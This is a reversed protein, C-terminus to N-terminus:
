LRALPLRLVLHFSNKGHLDVDCGPVEAARFEEGPGVPQMQACLFGLTHVPQFEAQRLLPVPTDDGEVDPVRVARQGLRQRQVFCATDAHAPAKGAPAAALPHQGSGVAIAVGGVGPGALVVDVADEGGLARAFLQGGRDVLLEDGPHHGAGVGGCLGGFAGGGALRVGLLAGALGSRRGLLGGGAGGQSGAIGLLGFGSGVTGGGIGRGIASHQADVAFATGDPQVCQVDPCQGARDRRFGALQHPHHLDIGGGACQGGVGDAGVAEAPQAAFFFSKQELQQIRGAVGVAAGSIVEFGKFFQPVGRRGSGQGVRVDDRHLLHSQAPVRQLQAPAASGVEAGGDRGRIGGVLRYQPANRRRVDDRHIRAADSGELLTRGDDSGGGVALAVAAGDRHRGGDVADLRGVGVAAVDGRPVSIGGLGLEKHRQRGLFRAQQEARQFEADLAIHRARHAGDQALVAGRGGQCVLEGVNDAAVVVHHQVHAADRQFLADFVLEIEGGGVVEVRGRDLGGPDCCVVADVNGVAAGVIAVVGGEDEGAGDHQLLGSGCRVCIRFCFSLYQSHGMVLNGCGGQGAGSRQRQGQGILHEAGHALGHQGDLAGLQFLENGTSQGNGGGEGAPPVVVAEGRLGDLGVVEHGAELLLLSLRKFSCLAGSCVAGPRQTTNSSFNIEPTGSSMRQPWM